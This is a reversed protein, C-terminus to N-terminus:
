CRVGRCISRTRDEISSSRSITSAHTSTSDPFPCSSTRAEHGLVLRAQRVHSPDVLLRHLLHGSALLHRGPGALVAGLPPPWWLGEGRDPYVRFDPLCRLAERM